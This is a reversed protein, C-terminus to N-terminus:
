VTGNRFVDLGQSPALKVTKGTEAAEYLARILRVDQRGEEGATHPKRKELVCRAMHDLELAFQNEDQIALERIREKKPDEEGGEAVRLQLGRYPYAPDMALWGRECLLRYQKSDYTNYSSACAAMTGSPFRVAFDLQEEVEAFRPDGLPSYKMATLEVPEEGTLYRAANLCYIGVDPLPGGGALARKMRWASPDKQMQGNSTVINKLRGLQLSPDLGRVIRIAERHHPEYQLRYAIMLWRQAKDCAAIMASCEDVTVAMPKECLVHKGAQAARITYEAHMSNPLVVYVVDVSADDRLRDFTQYDYLHAAEVGYQRATKEAKARDGSVLAAIRALKTHAFAPLLEELTLKGLGVLAFGIRKDPPLAEVEPASTVSRTAGSTGSAAAAEASAPPRACASAWESLTAAFLTAGASRLIGRRSLDPRM